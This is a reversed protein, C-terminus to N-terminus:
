FTEERRLQPNTPILPVVHVQYIHAEMLDDANDDVTDWPCQNCSLQRRGAWTGETWAMSLESESANQLAANVSPDVSGTSVLPDSGVPHASGGGTEAEDPASGYSDREGARTDRDDPM